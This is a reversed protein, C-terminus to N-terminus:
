YQHECNTYTNKTGTAGVCVDNTGAGGDLANTTSQTSGAGVLCDDGGGGHLNITGTVNRGLVLDNAATGPTSTGTIVILNTLNMDVCQTPALQSLAVPKTSVGAYSAPVTNSDTFAAVSTVVVVLLV